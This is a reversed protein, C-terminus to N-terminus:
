ILLCCIAPAGQANRTAVIGDYETVGKCGPAANTQLETAESFNTLSEGDAPFTFESSSTTEDLSISTDGNETSMHSSSESDEMERKRRRQASGKRGAPVSETKPIGVPLATVPKTPVSETRPIGVKKAPSTQNQEHQQKEQQEKERKRKRKQKEKEKQPLLKQQQSVARPPRPPDGRASIPVSDTRASTPVSDFFSRPELDGSLSSVSNVAAIGAGLFQNLIPLIDDDLDITTSSVMGSRVNRSSWIGPLQSASESASIDGEPIDATIVRSTRPSQITVPLVGCIEESYSSSDDCEGKQCGGSESM